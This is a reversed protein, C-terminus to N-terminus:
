RQRQLLFSVAWVPLFNLQHFNLKCAKPGYTVNQQVSFHCYNPSKVNSAVPTQPRKFKAAAMSSLWYGTHLVNQMFLMRCWKKVRIVSNKVAQHASLYSRLDKMIFNMHTFFYSSSTVQKNMCSCRVTRSLPARSWQHSWPRYVDLPLHRLMHILTHVRLTSLLMPHSRASVSHRDLFSVSVLRHRAQWSQAEQCRLCKRRPSIPRSM